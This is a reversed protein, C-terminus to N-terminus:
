QATCLLCTVPVVYVVRGFESSGESYDGLNGMTRRWRRRLRDVGDANGFANIRKCITVGAIHAETQSDSQLWMSQPWSFLSATRVSGVEVGVGSRQPRREMNVGYTVIFRYSWSLFCTTRQGVLPQRVYVVM